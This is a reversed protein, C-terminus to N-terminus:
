NIQRATFGMVDIHVVHLGGCVNPQSSKIMQAPLKKLNHTQM